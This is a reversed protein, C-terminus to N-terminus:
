RREQWLNAPLRAYPALGPRRLRRVKNHKAGTFAGREHGFFESELLGAPIAACNVKVFPRDKRHSRNHIARAVLAKLCPELPDGAPSTTNDLEAIGNLNMDTETM